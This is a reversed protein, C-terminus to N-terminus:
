TSCQSSPFAGTRAISKYSKSGADWILYRAEYGPQCATSTVYPSGKTAWQWNNGGVYDSDAASVSSYLGIWDYNGVAAASWSVEFWGNNNPGLCVRANSAAATELGTDAALAQAAHEPTAFAQEAM